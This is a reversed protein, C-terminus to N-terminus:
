RPNGKHEPCYGCILDSDLEAEDEIQWGKPMCSDKLNFLSEGEEGYLWIRFSESVKSCEACQIKAQKSGQLKM